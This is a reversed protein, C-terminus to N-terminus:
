ENARLVARCIGRFKRGQEGGDRGVQVLEQLGGALPCCYGCWGVV